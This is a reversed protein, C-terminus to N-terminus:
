AVDDKVRERYYLEEYEVPPIYGIPGLLRRNNFWDVWGLTAFEVEEQNKFLGRKRVVETKYLGNVTEALANDYADGKSGVSISIGAEELRDTYRISLFQVGADSHHVLHDLNDRRRGWIAMELADLALDSRLTNSVQWGIIMRSFADVIFAVYVFGLFTRVYTIDAVWLRNPALPKFDRNVLDQPRQTGTAPLTTKKTKGRKEGVIGMKLMLRAVTCKAVKIGERKLQRYIKYVGYVFYNEGYVRKIEKELEQDRLQRASPPRVKTDYYTSSAIPLVGCM